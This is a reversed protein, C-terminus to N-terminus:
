WFWEQCKACYHDKEEHQDVRLGCREGCCHNVKCYPDQMSVQMHERVLKEIDDKLSPPIEEGIVGQAQGYEVFAGSARAVMDNWDLGRSRGTNIERQIVDHLMENVKLERELDEIAKPINFMIGVCEYKSSGAESFTGDFISAHKRGFIDRYTITLRSVEARESQLTHKAECGIESYRSVTMMAASLASKYKTTEKSRQGVPLPKGLTYFMYGSLRKHARPGFVVGRINLAVDSGVNEIALDESLILVPHHEAYVQEESLKFQKRSVELQYLSAQVQEQSVAVQKRMMWVAAIAASAAAIAAVISATQLIVSFM